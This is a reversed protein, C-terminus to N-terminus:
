LFLVKTKVQLLEPLISYRYKSYLSNVGILELIYENHAAHYNPTVGQADYIKSYDDQVKQVIERSKELIDNFDRRQQKYITLELTKNTRFSRLPECIQKEMACAVKKLAKLYINLFIIL